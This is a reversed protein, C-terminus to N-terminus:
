RFDTILRVSSCYIAAKLGSCVNAFGALEAAEAPANSDPLAAGKAFFLTVYRPYLAVSLILDGAETSRAAIVTANGL